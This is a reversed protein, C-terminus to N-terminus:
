QLRCFSPSPRPVLSCENLNTLSSFFEGGAHAYGMQRCVVTADNSDWVDDCVTGWTDNICVEVRGEFPYSGGVLRVDGYICATSYMTHLIIEM